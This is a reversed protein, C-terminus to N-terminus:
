VYRGRLGAGEATAGGRGEALPRGEGRRPGAGEKAMAGGRGEALPRGEGGEAM